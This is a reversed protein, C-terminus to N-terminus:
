TMSKTWQKEIKIARFNRFSSETKENKRDESEDKKMVSFKMEDIMSAISLNRIKFSHYVQSANSEM